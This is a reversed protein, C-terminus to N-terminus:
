LGKSTGAAQTGVLLLEGKGGGIASALSARAALTAAASSKM